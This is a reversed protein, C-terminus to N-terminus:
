PSPAWGPGAAAPGTIDRQRAREVHELIAGHVLKLRAGYRRQGSIPLSTSSCSMRPSAPAMMEFGCSRPKHIGRARRSAYGEWLAARLSSSENRVLCAWWQQPRRWRAPRSQGQGRGSRDSLFKPFGIPEVLLSVSPNRVIKVQTSPRDEADGAGDAAPRRAALVLEAGSDNSACEHRQTLGM